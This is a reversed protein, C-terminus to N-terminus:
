RGSAGSREPIKQQKIGLCICVYDNFDKGAPPPEDKIEYEKGLMTRISEAAIRGAKDNDFHLHLEKIKENASLIRQLAVPM